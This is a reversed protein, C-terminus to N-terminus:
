SFSIENFKEKNQVILEEISLLIDDAEEAKFLGESIHEKQNDKLFTIIDGTGEIYLNLAELFLEKVNDSGSIKRSLCKNKIIRLQILTKNLNRELKSKEFFEEKLLSKGLVRLSNLLDL